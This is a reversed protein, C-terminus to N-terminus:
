KEWRVIKIIQGTGELEMETEESRGGDHQSRVRLGGGERLLTRPWIIYYIVGYQLQRVM